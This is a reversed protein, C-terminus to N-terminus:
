ETTTGTTTASTDDVMGSRQTSPIPNSSTVLGSELDEGTVSGDSPDREPVVESSTLSTTLSGTERLEEILADVTTNSENLDRVTTLQAIAADVKGQEAYGLALFYRANAYQGDLTVAQELATVAEDLRDASALLVGLQYRRAPNQPELQVVDAVIAIAQELDGANIDLQALFFLAETYNNKLRVAAEAAARAAATDQRGLALDAELLYLAPNHPDYTRASTFSEQAREAAGEVGVVALVAYIQGLLQHNLPNTPDLTIATQAAEIGRSAAAQFQQQEAEAPEAVTLISRMQSLRYFAIQAAFVDNEAIGFAKIMKTDLTDVSDGEVVTGIAKNFGYVALVQSGGLYTGYGVGSVIAVAIVILAIGGVRSKEASILLRRRPMLKASAAVFLGVTLAFLLLIAPPPVYVVLMVLFYLSAVLSSLGIFYWFRDTTPAHLLFRCGAWLLGGVFILWAVAGLIGTGILSTTLYSYASDFPTNWFITQNIAPDKHIRWVDVFRNPGAGLLADESYVAQTIDLTSELSPRVELYSVGLRDTVVSGIATGAFIFVASCLLVAISALVSDFSDEGLFSRTSRPNWVNRALHYLTAVGSVIGLVWWAPSFNIVALMLLALLGVGLTIFRGSRSLPLQQLAMLVLVVVLGYFIALGNWSGIPSATAASFFGFSFTEPGFILRSLHFLSLLFAGCLIVAYLRIVSRQSHLFSLSITMVLAMMVMFLATYSELGDGFVADRVDGSLLASTFTAAAVGWMGVIPWSLHLALAGERLMALVLFFTAIGLMGLVILTKGGSFPMYASPIFLLPLLGLTLIILTHAVSRLRNAMKDVVPSTSSHFLPVDM